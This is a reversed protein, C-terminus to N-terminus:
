FAASGAFVLHWGESGKAVEIRLPTAVSGHFRVGLGWNSKLGDFDLEDRSATVKGTDYFIAMDLGLRNPTWRWEASTLLSHRDRFRWSPYARLTSGSGLSPLLFFPVNDDDGLTTQVAGRLSIVWTERLIPIHQVLDVDLRDFSYTEDTDAYDHWRVGYFGGKRSYGPSTRWDIGAALESHLYTPSAGLGPATAPTHVTEISPYRGQGSKLTYDELTFAGELV